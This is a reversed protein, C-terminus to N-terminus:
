LEAEPFGAPPRRGQASLALVKFLSGMGEEDVLRAVAADITDRQEPSASLKLMTSRERIGLATLFDAQTIPGSVVAGGEQAAQALMAFDVHATIDAEGISELVPAYRHAQVAQLTDGISSEASGYDIILASGGYM